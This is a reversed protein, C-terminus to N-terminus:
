DVRGALRELDHAVLAGREVEVELHGVAGSHKRPDSVDQTTVLYGHAAADLPPQAIVRAQHHDHMLTRLRPEELREVLQRRELEHAGLWARDSHDFFLEHSRPSGGRPGPRRRPRGSEPGAPMRASRGWS